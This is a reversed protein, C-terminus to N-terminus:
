QRAEWERLVVLLFDRVDADIVDGVGDYFHGDVEIRVGGDGSPRVHISREQFQPTNSLKLQLYQEVADSIEDRRVEPVATQGMATRTVQRLLNRPKSPDDNETSSPQQSLLGIRGKLGGGSGGPAPLTGSPDATISPLVSSARAPAGNNVMAWLERVVATFRRGLESNAIEGVSRYRQEGMQIILSGDSLDRWVRMVEVADTPDISRRNKDPNPLPTTTQPVTVSVEQSSAQPVPAMMALWDMSPAILASEVTEPETLLPVFSLAELDPEPLDRLGAPISWAAPELSREPLQGSLFNGGMNKREGTNRRNGSAAPALGMRARRRREAARRLIFIMVGAYLVGFFVPALLLGIPVQRIFDGVSDM